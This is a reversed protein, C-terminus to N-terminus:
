NASVSIRNDFEVTISDTTLHYQKKHHGDSDIVMGSTVLGANELTGLRRYITPKSAGTVDVLENATRKGGSLEDLIDSAYEDGIIELVNESDLTPRDSRSDAAASLSVEDANTPNKVVM